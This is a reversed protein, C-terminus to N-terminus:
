NRKTTVVWGQLTEVLCEYPLGQLLHVLNLPKDKVLKVIKPVTNLYKPSLNNKENKNKPKM